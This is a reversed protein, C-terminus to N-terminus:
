ARFVIVPPPPREQNPTATREPDEQIGHPIKPTLQLHLTEHTPQQKKRIRSQSTSNIPYQQARDPEQTTISKHPPNIPSDFGILRVIPNICPVTVKYSKPPYAEVKPFEFLIPRSAVTPPTKKLRQTNVQHM